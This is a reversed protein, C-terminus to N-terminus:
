IKREYIRSAPRIGRDRDMAELAISVDDEGAKPIERATDRNETAFHREEIFQERTYPVADPQYGTWGRNRWGWVRRGMEVAGNEDMIKRAPEAHAADTRVTVLVDGRRVGEAYQQAEDEPVGAETLAGVIGGTTAGIGAGALAAAIPGAALVPGVVPLTLLGAASLLVGGVGGLVAGIGADELVESTHHREAAQKHAVISIDEARFGATQLNAIASEADSLTNFVGIITIPKTSVTDPPQGM